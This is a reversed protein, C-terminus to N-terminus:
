FLAKKHLILARHNFAEAIFGDRSASVDVIKKPLIFV